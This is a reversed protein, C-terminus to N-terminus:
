ETDLSEWEEDTMWIPDITYQYEEKEDFHHEDLEAQILEMAEKLSSAAASFDGNDWIKFRLTKKM